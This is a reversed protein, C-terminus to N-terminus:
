CGLRGNHQVTFQLLVIVWIMFVGQLITNERELVNALLHLASIKLQWYMILHVYLLSALELMAYVAINKVTRALHAPDQHRTEPYFQANPLHFLASLYLAYFIPVAFEIFEGVILQECEVLLAHISNDLRGLQSGKKSARPARPAQGSDPIRTPAVTNHPLIAEGGLSRTRTAVRGMSTLFLNRHDVNSSKALDQKVRRISRRLHRLHYVNQITDVAMLGAGSLMSAASQMCKFLYLADFLRVAVLGYANAVPIGASQRAVLWKMSLKVAPLVLVFAVQAYGDLRIYIANYVPYVLMLAGQIWALKQTTRTQEKIVTNEQLEKLGVCWILCFSASVHWAPNTLLIMFPVPFRWFRALLLSYLEVGITAGMGIFAAHKLTLNAAPILLTTHVGMGLSLAACSLFLRIWYVWNAQWGESPPRLPLLEVLITFTFAPTITLACVALVRLWSTSETYQLICRNKQGSTRDM